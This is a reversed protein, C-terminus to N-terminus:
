RHSIFYYLMTYIQDLYQTLSSLTVKIFDQLYGNISTQLDYHLIFELPVDGFLKM